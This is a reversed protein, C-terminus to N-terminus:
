DRLCYFCGQTYLWGLHLVKILVGLALRAPEQVFEQQIMDLVTHIQVLLIM